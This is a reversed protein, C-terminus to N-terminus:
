PREARRTGTRSCRPVFETHWHQCGARSETHEADTVPEFPATPDVPHDDHRPTTDSM